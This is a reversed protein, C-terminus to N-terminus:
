QNTDTRKELGNLYDIWDQNTPFFKLYERCLRKEEEIQGRHNAMHERGVLEEDLNQKAKNERVQQATWGLMVKAHSISGVNGGAFQPFQKLIQAHAEEWDRVAETNDGNNKHYFAMDNWAVYDTPNLELAKKQFQIASQFDGMKSYAFGLRSYAAFMDPKLKIAQKFYPISDKYHNQAHAERGADLWAQPDDQRDARVVPPHWFVGQQDLIAYACVFLLSLVMGSVLGFILRSRTSKGQRRLLQRAQAAVSSDLRKEERLVAAIEAMSEFRNQREKELCKLIISPLPPSVPVRSMDVSTEGVQLMITQLPSETRFPPAGTLMEYIVCGLSYIDAGKDLPKGLCQEPSMYDPSGFIEGTKTVGRKGDESNIKAIGFDVIRVRLNSFDDGNLGSLIVNSPKLDRHVVGSQHASELADALKLVIERVLDPSLQGEKKILESLCEGQAYEMVLYPLNSKEDVGFEDVRVIGPHNLRSASEAEQQFRSVAASDLVRGPMLIKLAVERQLLLHRARYVISMGGSGIREIIEYNGGVIQGAAFGFKPAAKVSKSAADDSVKLSVEEVIEAPMEKKDM